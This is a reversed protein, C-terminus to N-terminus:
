PLLSVSKKDVINFGVLCKIIGQGDQSRPVIRARRNDLARQLMAVQGESLTRTGCANGGWRYEDLTNDPLRVFVQGHHTLYLDASDDNVDVAVVQGIAGVDDATASSTWLTTASLVLIFAIAIRM